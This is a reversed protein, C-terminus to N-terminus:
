EDKNEKNNQQQQQGHRQQKSYSLENYPLNQDSFNQRLSDINNKLYAEVAASGPIFNASLNGDKDVKMIVAVDSGFDIRFPKNTKVSSNIADMLTASVQVTQQTAESKIDTFITSQQNVAQPSQASMQQNNVLNVFFTIDNQEMKMTQCYDGKDSIKETKSGVSQMKAGFHNKINSLAAIKSSLENLPEMVDENQSTKIGDADSAKDKILKDNAEQEVLEDKANKQVISQRDDENKQVEATEAAKAGQIEKTQVTKAGQNKVVDTEDRSDAVEQNKVADSENKATKTDQFKVADIITKSTKVDQTKVADSRDKASNAEQTKLTGATEVEKESFSADQIKVADLADKFSQTDDNTATNASSTATKPDVSKTLTTSEINM